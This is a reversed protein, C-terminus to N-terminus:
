PDNLIRCRSSAIKECHLNSKSIMFSSVPSGFRINEIQVDLGVLMVGVPGGEKEV